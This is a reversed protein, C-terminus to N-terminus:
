YFRLLSSFYINNKIAGYGPIFGKEKDSKEESKSLKYARWPLDRAMHKVFAGQGRTAISVYIVV